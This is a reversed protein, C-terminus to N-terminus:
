NEICPVYSSEMCTIWTMCTVVCKVAMKSFRYAGVHQDDLQAHSTCLKYWYRDSNGLSFKVVFDYFQFEHQLLVFYM